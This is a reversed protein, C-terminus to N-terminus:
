VYVGMVFVMVNANIDTDLMDASSFTITGDGQSIARVESGLYLEEMERDTSPAVIASTRNIESTIHDVAVTQEYVDGNQVWASALLTVSQTFIEPKENVEKTLAEDAQTTKNDLESLSQATKTDLESLSQTTKTDLESLSQTTKTDLDTISQALAEDAQSFTKGFEEVHEELEGVKTELAAGDSGKLISYPYLQVKNGSADKITLMGITEESTGYYQSTDFWIYPYSEPENPGVAVTEMGFMAAFLDSKWQTLIDPYTEEFSEGNNMGKAISISTNVGSNWRYTTEGKEVCKFVILFQLSGAYLTANESVLWSFVLKDPNEGSPEMDRVEYVGANKNKKNADINTYHVEISNCLAM